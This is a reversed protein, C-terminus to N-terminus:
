RGHNIENTNNQLVAFICCIRKGAIKRFAGDAPWSIRYGNDLEEDSENVPVEKGAGRQLRVATSGCDNVGILPRKIRVM